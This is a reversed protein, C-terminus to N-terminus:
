LEKILKTLFQYRPRIAGPKFWYVFSGEPKHGLLYGRLEKSETSTIVGARAMDFVVGCLGDNEGYLIAWFMKRRLLILLQKIPRNGLDDILKDLFELRPALSGYKWWFGEDDPKIDSPKHEEIYRLLADREAWDIICKKRKMDIISYCLSGGYANNINGPLFDRLLILLDKIPRM